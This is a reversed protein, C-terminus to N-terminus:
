KRKGTGFELIRIERPALTLTFKDGPNATAPLGKAGDKVPSSIIYPGQAGPVLGLARDLTFSYSQKKDSPNHVSVYGLDATWGAYGYIEMKAPDGGHMRARKFAPLFKEAWKLGEAVVDWDAPQLVFPKIYLEVFGTGRSLSMLLYRRFTDEPEGTKTKKPEHNFLSDLPFQTNETRFIKYYRGDRYVLEGTRGAGRAADGANIMWVADIHQLWWPSLYAGNSIVIYIDPDIRGLHDFLKMLRETGASLYYLKIEDYKPDNLRKDNGKLDAPVLQPMEPLGYRAGRLEFNRINLHGFIGDLKFFGVGQRALEAM